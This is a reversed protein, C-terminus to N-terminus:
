RCISDMRKARMAPRRRIKRGKMNRRIVDNVGDTRTMPAVLKVQQPTRLPLPLPTPSFPSVDIRKAVTCYEGIYSMLWQEQTQEDIKHRIKDGLVILASVCMQVDGQYLSSGLFACTVFSCIRAALFEYLSICFLIVLNTEM